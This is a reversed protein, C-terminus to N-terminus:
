PNKRCENILLAKFRLRFFNPRNNFFNAQGSKNRAYNQFICNCMNQM